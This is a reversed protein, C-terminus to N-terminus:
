SKDKGDSHGKEKSKVFRGCLCRPIVFCGGHEPCDEDPELALQYCICGYDYEECVHVDRM